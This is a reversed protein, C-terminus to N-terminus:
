KGRAANLAATLAELRRTLQAMLQHMEDIGAAPSSSAPARAARPMRGPGILGELRELFPSRQESEKFVMRFFELPYIGIVHCITLVHHVKLDQKGTLLRGLDTGCGGDRLRREIERRSLGSLEILHGLAARLHTVEAKSGGM